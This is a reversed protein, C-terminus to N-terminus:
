ARAMAMEIIRQCLQDFSIGAREAAKPFLSHDTFGPITNIELIYPRGSAEDVMWDVRSFDTCGLARHAELSLKQVENLLAEPLDLDFLYETTNEIYKAEYDYFERPTRIECVPLADDGLIGVTLEPGKIYEEILCSGYKRVVREVASQFGFADRAIMTDVSSGQDVPKIVTPLKWCNVAQNIQAAHVVKYAPTPIGCDIFRRKSAAKDMALRSAAANSGVYPMRRKELIAQLQGDEGFAGHLAIFILDASRDLASLDNPSIDSTTVRHGCRRLASAVARGSNLSVEREESPGGLLVTIDHTSIAPSVPQHPQLQAATAM